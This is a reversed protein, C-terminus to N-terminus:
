FFVPQLNGADDDAAKLHINLVVVIGWVWLVIIAVVLLDLVQPTLFYFWM